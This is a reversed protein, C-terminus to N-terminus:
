GPIYENRRDIRKVFLKIPPFIKKHCRFLRNKSSFSKYLKEARLIIRNFPFEVDLITWSKGYIKVQFITMAWFRHIRKARSWNKLNKLSLDIWFHMRQKSEIGQPSKRLLYLDPAHGGFFDLNEHNKSKERFVKALKQFSEQIRRSHVPCNLTGFFSKQNDFIVRLAWFFYDYSLIRTNTQRPVLKKSM